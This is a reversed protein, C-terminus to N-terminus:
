IKPAILSIHELIMKLSPATDNLYGRFKNVTEFFLVNEPTINKIDTKERVESELDNLLNIAATRDKAEIITKVLDLREKLSAKLFKLATDDNRETKIKQIELRSRLTPLLIASSPVLLFFHTNKTPEEFTKLLSNQAERTIKETSIIIIKKDGGVSKKLSFNSVERGEDIGFKDYEGMWFDPNRESKFGLDKKISQLLYEKILPLDGEFCYAHHLHEPNLSIM